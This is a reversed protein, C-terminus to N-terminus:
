NDDSESPPSAEPQNVPKLHNWANFGAKWITVLSSESIYGAVRLVVGILLSIIIYTAICIFTATGVPLHSYALIVTSFVLVYLIVLILILAWLPFPANQKIDAKYYREAAKLMLKRLDPDDKCEKAQKVTENFKKYLDGPLKNTKKPSSM